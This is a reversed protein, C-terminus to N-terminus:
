NNLSNMAFALVDLAAIHYALFSKYEANENQRQETAEAVSKDLARIGTTSAAIEKPLTALDETATAVILCAAGLTPEHHQSRFGCDGSVSSRIIPGTDFKISSSSVGKGSTVLNQNGPPM